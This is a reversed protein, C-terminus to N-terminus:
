FEIIEDPFVDYFIPKIIKHGNIIEIDLLKSYVPKINNNYNYNVPIKNKYCIRRCVPYNKFEEVYYSYYGNNLNLVWKTSNFLGELYNYIQTFTLNEKFVKNQIYYEKIFPYIKGLLECTAVNYCLKSEM